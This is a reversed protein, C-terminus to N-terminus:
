DKIIEMTCIFPDKLLNVDNTEETTYPPAQKAIKASENTLGLKIRGYFEYFRSKEHIDNLNQNPATCMEACPSLRQEIALM